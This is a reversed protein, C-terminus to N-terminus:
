GSYLWIDVIDTSGGGGGGGSSLVYRSIFIWQNGNFYFLIREEEEELTYTASGEINNGNGNITVPTNAFNVASKGKIGVINSERPYEPLFLTINGDVEYYVNSALEDNNIVESNFDYLLSNEGEVFFNGGSVHIVSRAKGNPIRNNSEFTYSDPFVVTAIASRNNNQDNVVYCYFGNSLTSPFTINIEEVLSTQVVIVYGLDNETVTYHATVFKIGNLGGGTGIIQNPLLVPTIEDILPEGRGVVQSVAYIRVNLPVVVSDATRDAILYNCQKEPSQILRVSTDPKIIEIDYTVDQSSNNFPSYSASYEWFLQINGDADISGTANTPSFPRYSNGKPAITTTPTTALNQYNAVVPLLTLTEGVYKSDGQLESYYAGTEATLLFFKQPLAHSGGFGETRFLGRNLYSLRFTTATLVQVDRFQIIEGEYVGGSLTGIVALNLNAVLQADTIANVEGSELEIDVTNVTDLGSGNALVTLVNGYTSVGEHNVEKLYSAGADVSVLVVCPNNAFVYLTGPPTSEKFVPVDVVFLEPITPVPVPNPDVSPPAPNSYETVGAFYRAKVDILYDAGVALTEIQVTEGNPLPITSLPELGVGSLATAPIKVNYEYRQQRHIHRLLNLASTRMQEPSCFYRSDITVNNEKVFDINQLEELEDSYETVEDSDYNKNINFFKISVQNPIQSPNVENKTFLKNDIGNASVPFFHNVNVSTGTTLSGFRIFKIIGDRTEIATMLFIQFLDELIKRYGEGSEPVIFGGDIKINGLDSVDILNADIGARGCISTIVDALRPNVGLEEDVLIASIQQPIQNGYKELPLDSFGIYCTNTYAIDKYPAEDKATMESWPSTQDGKFFTVYEQYYPHGTDYTDGNIILRDMSCEGQCFLVAFTGFYTTKTQGGKGGGGGGKGKSRSTSKRYMREKTDPWFKNGEIRVKGYIKVLPSGYDSRPVRLDVEQEKPRPAFLSALLNLGTSIALPVILQAL